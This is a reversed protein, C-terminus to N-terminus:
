KQHLLQIGYAFRADRATGTLANQLSAQIKGVVIEAGARSTAPLVISYEESNGHYDFALDVSRLVEDVRAALQRAAQTRAEASLDRANALKIVVMSVDFGVRKALSAIYTSYRTFYNETLLNHDPNVLSGQKATQYKQANSLSMGAWEGIATFSQISSLNLDTFGIREVKLMGLVVGTDKDVIPAALVGQGSLVREHDSNIVSLTTNSATIARFIEHNSSFRRLYPDSEAWGQTLALELQGNQLLYISFAQPNMVAVILEGIGRVVENQTLTEMSRAARYASISSRLQGAIRLELKEKSEKVWEYSQALTEERETAQDLNEQLENRERIHKQRLEGLTVGVIVWLLPTKAVTYLYDYVNQGSTQEPLNFLLLVVSSFLAAVLGEATGYQAAVLLVIIWFPHPSVDRFRVGAGFIFDIILMAVLFILIELLASARIGLIRTHQKEM